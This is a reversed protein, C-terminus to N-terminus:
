GPDVEFRYGVGRVASFRFASRPTWGLKKKLSLVFNDVTRPEVIVGDQWVSELIESRSLARGANGVMFTLLDYETRTLSVERGDSDTVRRAAEDIRHGPLAQHTVAAPQGRRLVARIRVFLEGLRYPKTLYDDAGAEFGRILDEELARATLMVIGLGPRTQRLHRCLAYGDGDPLMIDLLVLDWSSEAAAQRGQEATAVALVDHGESQLNETLALRINEDDEVILLRSM